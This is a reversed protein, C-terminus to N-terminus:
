SILMKWEEAGIEVNGVIQLLVMMFGALRRLFILRWQRCQGDSEVRTTASTRTCKEPQAVM